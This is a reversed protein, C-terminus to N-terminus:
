PRTMKPNDGSDKLKISYVMLKEFFFSQRAMETFEYMNSFEDLLFEINSHSSAVMYIHGKPKIYDPAQLLFKQMVTTGGPGGEWPEQTNDSPLYPPNFTIIDFQDVVASFLDSQYVALVLNNRVANHQANAVARPNNDVATVSAGQKAAHLGVIGTGTGMDLLSEEGVRVNKILLYSDEAPNYVGSFVDISLNQDVYM